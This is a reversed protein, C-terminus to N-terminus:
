IREWYTFILLNISLGNMSVKDLIKDLIHIAYPKSSLTEWEIQKVNFGNILDQIADYYSIINIFM